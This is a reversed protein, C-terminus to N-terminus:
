EKDMQAGCHRCWNDKKFIRGGCDSCVIVNKHTIDNHISVPKAHRIKEVEEIPANEVIRFLDDEYSWICDEWEGYYECEDSLKNLEDILYGREIYQLNENM